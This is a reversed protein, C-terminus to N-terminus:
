RACSLTVKWSGTRNRELEIEIAALKIMADESKECRSLLERMMECAVASVHEKSLASSTVEASAAKATLKDDKGKSNNGASNGKGTRSNPAEQSSSVQITRM